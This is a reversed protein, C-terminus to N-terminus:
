GTRYTTFASSLYAFKYTNANHAPWFSCSCQNSTQIKAAYATEIPVEPMFDSIFINPWTHTHTPTSAFPCASAPLTHLNPTTPCQYSQFHFSSSFWISIRLQVRARRCTNACIADVKRERESESKQAQIARVYRPKM